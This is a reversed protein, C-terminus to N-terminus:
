ASEREVSSNRRSNHTPSHMGDNMDQTGHTGSLSNLTNKM